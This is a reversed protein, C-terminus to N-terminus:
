NIFYLDKNYMDVGLYEAEGALTKEYKKCDCEYQSSSEGSDRACKFNEEFNDRAVWGANKSDFNNKTRAYDAGELWQLKKDRIEIGIKIIKDKVEQIRSEEIEKTVVEGSELYWYKGSVVKWKHQLEELLIKYIPLQMSNEKEENKGTKFDVVSISGNKNDLEKTASPEHYEIWDVNGCLIINEEPSIYFNPLMDGTYYSKTSVTKSLLMKPDAIVNKIMNVGREKFEAEQESSIFGGKKGTVKAFEADFNELLNKNSIEEEGESKLEFTNEKKEGAGAFSASSILSDKTSEIIERREEVKFTKLAEVVNHVAIGLSMYPSTINIKRKTKPDKYVDHLYYLRPCKEYDGISSHSLWIAKYKDQRNNISEKQM